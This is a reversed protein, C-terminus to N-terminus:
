RPQNAQQLYVRLAQGILLKHSMECTDAVTMHCPITHQLIKQQMETVFPLKHRVRM